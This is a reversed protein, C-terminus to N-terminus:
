PIIKRNNFADLLNKAIEYVARTALRTQDVEEVVMPVNMAFTLASGGTNDVVQSWGKVEQGLGERAPPCPTWRRKRTPAAAADPNSDLSGAEQRSSFCM